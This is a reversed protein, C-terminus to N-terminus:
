AKNSSCLYILWLLSLKDWFCLHSRMEAVPLIINIM